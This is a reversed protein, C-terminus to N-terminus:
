KLNPNLPDLRKMQALAQAKQEATASMMINLAAWALYNNPFREVADLAVTLAESELKNDNLTIAVRIMRSSDVPWLYAAQQIVVPNGTELAGKFKASALYPPIGILVGVLLGVFMALSSAASAQVPKTASRGPKKEVIADGGRTKIEYGIILGSL